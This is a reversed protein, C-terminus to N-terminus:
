MIKHGVYINKTTLYLEFKSPTFHVEKMALVACHRKKNKRGPTALM